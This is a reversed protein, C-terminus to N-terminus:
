ASDPASHPDSIRGDKRLRDQFFFKIFNNTKNSSLLLVYRAKTVIDRGELALPIFSRQVLTPESWGITDIAEFICILHTFRSHIRVGLIHNM